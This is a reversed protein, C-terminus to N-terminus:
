DCQKQRWCHYSWAWPQVPESDQWLGLRQSRDDKEMERLSLDRLFKGQKEENEGARGPKVLARSATTTEGERKPDCSTQEDRQLPLDCGHRGYHDQEYCVLDLSKNAILTELK